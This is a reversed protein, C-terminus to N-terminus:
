SNLLKNLTLWVYFKHLETNVFQEIENNLNKDAYIDLRNKPFTVALYIEETLRKKLHGIYFSFTCGNSKGGKERRARENEELWKGKSTHNDLKDGAFM